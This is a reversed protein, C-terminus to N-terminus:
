SDNEAQWEKLHAKVMKEITYEKAVQLACEAYVERNELCQLIGEALAKHDEVPVICGNENQKVMALGAICRDTTVVPLGKALAENIVLGWIDERTPHVFVDALEYYESLAEKPKFDIFYVNSLKLEELLTSYEEPANGGVIYVGAGDLLTCAKLLVDYGKRPIFQGVALIVREEKIGLKQRLENKKELAIPQNLVEKEFISTFPYRVLKDETAGYNKYYRDHEEATSFYRTAKSLLWKKVKEKIGKRNNAFAGDSEIEYPIKRARLKSIAWMGTPDSFNTVVIHDYQFKRKLYKSISPCFAEAVGVSKGKLFVAQFNETKFHSWSDDRETSSRREFIVTLDCYKGLENFFAVRYPSPINTLWLIKKM